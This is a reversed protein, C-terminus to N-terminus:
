GEGACFVRQHNEGIEPNEYSERDIVHCWHCWVAGIDLLVAQGREQGACVRKAGSMGTSRNTRRLVCIPSASDKLRNKNM